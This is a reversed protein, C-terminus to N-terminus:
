EVSVGEYEDGFPSPHVRNHLFNESFFDLSYSQTNISLTDHYLLLPTSSM